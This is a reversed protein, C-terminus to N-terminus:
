GKRDVVTGLSSSQRVGSKQYVVHQRIEHAAGPFADAFYQKEAHTLKIEDPAVSAGTAPEAPKPTTANSGKANSRVQTTQVAGSNVQHIEM